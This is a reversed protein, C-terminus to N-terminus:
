IRTRTRVQPRTTFAHPRFSRALHFVRLHKPRPSKVKQGLSLPAAMGGDTAFNQGCGPCLWDASIIKEVWFEAVLFRADGNCRTIDM